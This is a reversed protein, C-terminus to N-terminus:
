ANRGKEFVKKGGLYTAKVEITLLKDPLITFPDKDLLVFDALYGPKLLGKRKEQFEAYASNFTFLRLADWISYKEEPYWGEEPFGDSRQRNVAAHIGKIPNADEIPADSGGVCKVGNKMLTKWAYSYKMRKEGLFKDATGIDTEVFVPQISAVVGLQAMKKILDDGLVQCHVLIPRGGKKVFKEFGEITLEAGKDGIAHIELQWGMKNFKEIMNHLKDKQYFLIGSNNTNEYFERMAATQAGLSGDSYIKIRGWRFYDDGMGTRIDPNDILIEDLEDHNPTFTVRLNLDNKLNQYVELGHEDITQISTIGVSNLYKESAM